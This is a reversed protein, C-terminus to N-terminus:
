YHLKEIVHLITKMQPFLLLEKSARMVEGQDWPNNGFVNGQALQVLAWSKVLHFGCCGLVERPGGAPLVGQNKPDSQEPTRPHLFIESPTLFAFGPCEEPM